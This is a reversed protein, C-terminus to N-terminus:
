NFPYKGIHVYQISIHECKSIEKQNGKIHKHIWICLCSWDNTLYIAFFVQVYYCIGGQISFIVGVLHQLHHFNCYRLIHGKIINRDMSFRFFLINDRCTSHECVQWLWRSSPPFQLLPLIHHKIINRDIFFTSFLIVDKSYIVFYVILSWIQQMNVVWMVDTQKYFSKANMIVFKIIAVYM